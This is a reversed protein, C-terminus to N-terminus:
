FRRPPPEIMEQIRTQNECPVGATTFGRESRQYGALCLKVRAIRHRGNQLHQPSFGAVGQM